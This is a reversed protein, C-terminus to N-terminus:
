RITSICREARGAVLEATRALVQGDLGPQMLGRGVEAVHTKMAEGIEAVRRRILPLGLTADAAFAAWARGDM